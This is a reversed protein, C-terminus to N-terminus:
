GTNPYFLWYLAVREDFHKAEIPMPNPTLITTAKPLVMALMLGKTYARDRWVYCDGIKTPSLNEFMSVSALSPEYAYAVGDLIRRYNDPTEQTKTYWSIKVRDGHPFVREGSCTLQDSEDFSLSIAVLSEPEEPPM